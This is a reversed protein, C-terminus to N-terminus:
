KESENKMKKKIIDKKINENAFIKKHYTEIAEVIKSLNENMLQLQEVIEQNKAIVIKQFEQHELNIKM